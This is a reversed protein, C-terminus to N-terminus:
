VRASGGSPANETEELWRLLVANAAAPREELPLHGTEPLVELRADPIRELLGRGINLPIIRDADGWLLLTPVAISGLHAPADRAFGLIIRLLAAHSGRVRTPADYGRLVAPTVFAPDYVARQMTRRSFIRALGVGAGLLPLALRLLLAVPRGLLQENPDISGVLVLRSVLDPHREALRLAVGGGLSHGLVVADELGQQRMFRAVTDAQGSSSYDHQDGRESYGFGPLDIAVVRSRPSLAPITERFSFTSAGFGPILLTPPGSGSEVYHIRVGDVDTLQGPVVVDDLPQSEHRRILGVGALAFSAYGLASLSLWRSATM